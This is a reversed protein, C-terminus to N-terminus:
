CQNALHCSQQLPAKDREHIQGALRSINQAIRSASVTFVHFIFRNLSARKM